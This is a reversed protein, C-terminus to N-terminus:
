QLFATRIAELLPDQQGPPRDALHGEGITWIIVGGHNHARAYYGKAAISQEDEYSVFNCAAPGMPTASSLYPVRAAADWVRKTAVPYQTAINAYSMTGDSTSISGGDQHPGTVGQWCYGYFALGMGLKSAPVSAPAALFGLRISM